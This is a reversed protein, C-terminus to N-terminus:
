IHYLKAEAEAIEADVKAIESDVARVTDVPGGPAPLTPKSPEVAPNKLAPHRPIGETLPDSPWADAHGPYVKKIHSVLAQAVAAKIAAPIEASMEAHVEQKIKKKLDEASNMLAASAGTEEKAPVTIAQKIRNGETGTPSHGKQLVSARKAAMQKIMVRAMAVVNKRKEPDQIAEAAKLMKQLALDEFPLSADNQSRVVSTQEPVM